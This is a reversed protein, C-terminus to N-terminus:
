EVWTVEIRPNEKDIGGTILHLEKINWCSDDAILTGKLADMPLKTHNDYDRIRKDPWFFMLQLVSLQEFPKDQALLARIQWKSAEIWAKGKSSLM